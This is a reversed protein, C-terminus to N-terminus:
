LKYIRLLESYFSLIGRFSFILDSLLLINRHVIHVGSSDTGEKWIMETIGEPNGFQSSMRVGKRLVSLSVLREDLFLWAGVPHSRFDEALIQTVLLLTYGPLPESRVSPLALCTSNSHNPPCLSPLSPRWYSVRQERCLGLPHWKCISGHSQCGAISCHRWKSLSPPLNALELEAVEQTLSSVTVETRHAEAGEAGESQIREWLRWLQPIRIILIWAIDIPM